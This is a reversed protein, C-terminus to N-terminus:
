GAMNYAIISASLIIGYSLIRISKAIMAYGAGSPTTEAKERLLEEKGYIKDVFYDPVFEIVVIGIIAIVFINLTLILPVGFPLNQMFKSDPDTSLYYGVFVIIMVFLSLTRKIKARNNIIKKDLHETEDLLNKLTKM